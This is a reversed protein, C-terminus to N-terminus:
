DITALEKELRRKDHFDEIKHRKRQSIVKQLKTKKYLRQIEKYFDNM